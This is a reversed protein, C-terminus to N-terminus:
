PGTCCFPTEGDICRFCKLEGDVRRGDSVLELQDPLDIDSTWDGCVACQGVNTAVLDPDGTLYTYGLSYCKDFWPEHELQKAMEFLHDAIRDLAGNLIPDMEDQPPPDTRPVIVTVSLTVLVTSTASM